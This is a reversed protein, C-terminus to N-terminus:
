ITKLIEKIGEEKELIRAILEKSSLQKVAGGKHPNKCDLNWGRARINDISVKWAHENEERKNWWARVGDLDADKISKGKTYARLGDPLPVEYYWIEKTPTGKEFFVLNTNVGAYPAFVGSPLRIITHVNCENLLHEKIRALVGDGFLSGDPLVVGARGGHKLLHIFLVLFLEATSKTRFTSPFNNETGDKVAGGFPPNAVIVDVRDKPGYETLPKGLMDGRTIQDPTEVGHLIFNTIALIHPLQKLETGRVSEELKKEDKATKVYKARVHEITNVLFGGTGCAPDLVIEGLKPDLLDVVLKTIPRPTYFEGYNGASQLQRLMTEYIDNLAYRDDKRNFDMENLKNIMQRLLTGSKMYNNTDEFAERVILMRRTDAPLNKLTPFLRQNIFDILEDGTLGEKDEAWTRWQYERPIPSIYKLDKLELFKDQDDILKLFLMWILQEVRQGDGAVGADKRMIDQITKVLNQISM